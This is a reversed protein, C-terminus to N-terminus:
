RLLGSVSNSGQLPERRLCRGPDSEIVTLKCCLQSESHQGQSPTSGLWAHIRGPEFGPRGLAVERSKARAGPRTAYQTEPPKRQVFQMHIEGHPALGFSLALIAYDGFSKNMHSESHAVQEVRPEPLAYTAPRQGGGTGGRERHQHRLVTPSPRPARTRKMQKKRRHHLGEGGACVQFLSRSNGSVL